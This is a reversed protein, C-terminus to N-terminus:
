FQRIITSENQIDSLKKYVRDNSLKADYHYVNDSLHNKPDAENANVDQVMEKLLQYEPAFRDPLTKSRSTKSIPYPFIGEGIRYSGVSLECSHWDGSRQPGHWVHAVPM